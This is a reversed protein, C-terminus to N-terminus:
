YASLIMLIDPNVKLGLSQARKLDANAKFFQAESFYALGRTHYAEALGPDLEIAKTCDAIAKENEHKRAYAAGRSAYAGAHGPKIRIARTFDRIAKEREGLKFYVSGRRNFANALTPKIKVAMTLDAIAKNNDNSLAYVSGRNYYAKASRPNIEIAKTFESIAMDTEGAKYHALGRRNHGDAGVRFLSSVTLLVCIGTGCVLLIKRFTIKNCPRKPPNQPVVDIEGKGKLEMLQDEKNMFYKKLSRDCLFTLLCIVVFSFSAGMIAYSPVYSHETYKIYLIFLNILLASVIFFLKYKWTLGKYYM